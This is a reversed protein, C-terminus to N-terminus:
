SPFDGCAHPHAEATDHSFGIPLSTGVRTPTLRRPRRHPRRQHLLGWVRPPSGDSMPTITTMSSFDGCAHPHAAAPNSPACSPRSTGVRTPTLRRDPRPRAAPGVFDGCAHPHAPARQRCRSRPPSTGVRTPTLRVKRRSVMSTARLGWVRPPSGDRLFALGLPTGFDGCAHPHAARVRVVGLRFGSTGVRTPTLRIMGIDGGDAPQLGWVRPPSGVAM